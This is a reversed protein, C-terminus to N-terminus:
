PQTEVDAVLRELEGFRAMQRDNWALRFRALQNRPDKRLPLADDHGRGLRVLRERLRVLQTERRMQLATVVPVVAVGRPARLATPGSVVTVKAGLARAASALAFGMAGTSANSLFRIPDLHERTPGSTILVRRGRLAPSM